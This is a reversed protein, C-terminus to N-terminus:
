RLRSPGPSTQRAIAPPTAQSCSHLGHGHSATPTPKILAPMAQHAAPRRDPPAPPYRHLGIETAAGVPQILEAPQLELVQGREDERGLGAHDVHAPVPPGGAPSRCPDLVGDLQSM